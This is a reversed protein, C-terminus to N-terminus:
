VVVEGVKCMIDHCEVPFLKEVQQVRSNRVTFKFLNVLPDSGSARGGM